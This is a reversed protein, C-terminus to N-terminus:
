TMQRVLQATTVEAPQLRQSSQRGFATMVHHLAPDQRERLHLPIEVTFVTCLPYVVRLGKIAGM